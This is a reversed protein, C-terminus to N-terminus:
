RAFDPLEDVMCDGQGDRIAPPEPEDHDRVIGIPGAQGLPHEDGQPRYSEDAVEIMAMELTAEFVSNSANVQDLFQAVEHDTVDREKQLKRIALFEVSNM